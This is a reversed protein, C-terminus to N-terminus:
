KMMEIFINMLIDRDNNIILHNWCDNYETYGECFSLLHIFSEIAGIISGVSM